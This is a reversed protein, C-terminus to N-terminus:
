RNKLNKSIRRNLLGKLEDRHGDEIQMAFKVTRGQHDFSLKEGGMVWWANEFTYAFSSKSLNITEIPGINELYYTKAKGFTYISRKVSLTDDEIRILENGGLRFLFTRGVRWLYYLWFVLFILLLMRTERQSILFFQRIVLSGCIIWLLLWAGMLAEQWREIRGLIVVSLLSGESKYSIKPGILKLSM